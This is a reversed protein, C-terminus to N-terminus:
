ATKPDYRKTNRTLYDETVTMAMPPDTATVVAIQFSRPGVKKTSAVILYGFEGHELVDHKRYKCRVRKKTM